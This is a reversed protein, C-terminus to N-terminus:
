GTDRVQRSRHRYLWRGSRTFWDRGVLAQRKPGQRASAREPSDMVARSALEHVAFHTWPGGDGDLVRYRRVRLWDPAKLLLGSHENEYWDDFQKEDEEPVAFAVVALHTHEGAAGSDSVLECTFRTFGRVSGLMRRTRDSPETKLRLYEPRHLASMDSLEYV